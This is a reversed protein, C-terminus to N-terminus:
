LLKRVNWNKMSLPMACNLFHGLDCDHNDADASAASALDLLIKYLYMDMTGSKM